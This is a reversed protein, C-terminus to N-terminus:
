KLIHFNVLWEVSDQEVTKRLKSRSQNRDHGVPQEHTVYYKCLLIRNLKSVFEKYQLAFKLQYLDFFLLPGPLCRLHVFEAFSASGDRASGILHLFHHAFSDMSAAMSATSFPLVM